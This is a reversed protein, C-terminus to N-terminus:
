PPSPTSSSTGSIFTPTPKSTPSNQTIFSNSGLALFIAADAAGPVGGESLTPHKELHNEIDQLKEITFSM